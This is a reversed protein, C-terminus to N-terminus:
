HSRKRVITPLGYTNTQYLRYEKSTKPYSVDWEWQL